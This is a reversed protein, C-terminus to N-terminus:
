NGKKQNEYDQILGRLLWNALAQRNNVELYRKQDFTNRMNALEAFVAPQKTERLVHLNKPSITGSFGRNPQHMKYQTEMTNRLASALKRSNANDKQYFFYVDLQRKNGQSDLHIYIARQYKEQAKQSLANVKDTRQKLRAVNNLPIEAGMCTERKSNTLYREDRIGDKADQIIIHVTAGEQLLNRALRLMIDYAYEDENLDRGDVKVVAGPDPGGHGSVLFFCAGKLRPNKNITYEEYKKGFLPEKKKIETQGQQIPATLVTETNGTGMREPLTYYIGLRLSNNKGFKGKNLEVFAPYDKESCNNRRLFAYIGEGERPLARNQATLSITFLLFFFLTLFKINSQM